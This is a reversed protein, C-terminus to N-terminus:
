GIRYLLPVVVYMIVGYALGFSVLMTLPVTVQRRRYEEPRCCSRARRLSIWAAIAVFALGGILGYFRFKGLSVFAAALGGTLGIALASAPLVCCITSLLGGLIGPAISPLAKRLAAPVLRACLGTVRASRTVKGVDPESM